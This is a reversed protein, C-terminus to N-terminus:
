SGKGVRTGGSVSVCIRCICCVKWGGCSEVIMELLKLMVIVLSIM